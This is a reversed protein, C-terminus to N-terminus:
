KFEIPDTKTFNQEDPNELSMYKEPFLLKVDTRRLFLLFLLILFLPGLPTSVGKILGISTNLSTSVPCIM